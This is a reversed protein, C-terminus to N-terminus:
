AVHRAEAEAPAAALAHIVCALLDAIVLPKALTGDFGQERLAALRARDNEATFAVIAARSSRGELRRIARMASTGSMGPMNVDMLILDFQCHAAAAIADDGSVAEFIDVEIKDLAARVLVRNAENDDVVLVNGRAVQTEGAVSKPTALTEGHCPAPIEFWFLSGKGFETAVGIRGDMGEVLGKCIALGLGSGGYTRSTSRDVQSFRQFLRDMRDPPIGPGTDLVEFRLLQGQPAGNGAGARAISLTVSGVDTFKVANGVLNLLIQALRQPDILVEADALEAACDLHLAVGKSQAQVAFLEVIEEARRAVPVPEPAFEIQGSELKSFDLIDNITSLLARSANRVRTAYRRPQEELNCTDHLLDAFGIVSTLPTRLEHSMNALFDSKALAAAEARERAAVLEAEMAKRETVDRFVNVYGTSEGAEDRLVCPNGELWVWDGNKRRFRHQRNRAADAPAGSLLAAVNAAFGPLDDPHLLASGCTGLLEEPEYGLARCAPSVYLMEANRGVRVILDTSNEALLRYREESEQLAAATKRSEALAAALRDHLQRRETIAAAAPLIGVTLAALLLQVVLVHYAITGNLQTLPGMGLVTCTSSVIAVGLLAWAAGEIEAVLSTFLLAIPVVCIAPFVPIAFAGLTALLTASASLVVKLSNNPLRPGSKHRTAALVIAPTLITFSLATSLSWSLWNSDFAGGRAWSSFAAGFVGMTAAVASSIAIFGCLKKWERFDANWDLHRNTWWWAIAIGSIGIATGVVANVPLDGAALKGAIGGLAAAALLHLVPKREKLLCLALILGKAPWFKAVHIGQQMLHLSIWDLAAVAVLVGAFEVAMSAPRHRHFAFSM